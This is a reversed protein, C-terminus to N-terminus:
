SRLKKEKKRKKNEIREAARKLLYWWEENNKEERYVRVAGASVLIKRLGDEDNDWGGLYKKLTKFSRDTFKSHELFHKASKIVMLEAKQKERQKSSLIFSIFGTLIAPILAITITEWFNM